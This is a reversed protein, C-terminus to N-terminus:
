TKTTRFLGGLGEEELEAKVPYRAESYYPPLAVDKKLPLTPLSAMTIKGLLGKM